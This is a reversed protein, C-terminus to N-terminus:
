WISGKIQGIVDCDFAHEKLFTVLKEKIKLNIFYLSQVERSFDKFFLFYQYYFMSMYFYIM